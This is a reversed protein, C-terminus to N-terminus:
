GLFGNRGLWKIADLALRDAQEKEQEVLREYLGIPKPEEKPPHPYRCRKGLHCRGHKQWEFCIRPKDPLARVPVSPPVNVPKPVTKSSEQEPAEDSDNSESESEEESSSVVSSASLVSSAESESDSSYGLGLEIASPKATPTAADTPKAESASSLRRKSIVSEQVKERLARLETTAQKKVSSKQTEKLPRKGKVKRLFELESERKKASEQAKQAVRKQTPYQKRRDKIWAALEAPTQLSVTQGNHEFVMGEVKGNSAVAAEEDVDEEESSEYNEDERQTLGLHVKPKGGV